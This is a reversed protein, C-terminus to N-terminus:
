FEPNKENDQEPENDQKGMGKDRDPVSMATRRGTVSRLGIRNQESVVGL